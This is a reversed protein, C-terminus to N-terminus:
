ASLRTSKLHRKKTWVSKQGTQMPTQTSKAHLQAAHLQM